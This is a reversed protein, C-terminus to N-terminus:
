QMSRQRSWVLCHKCYKPLLDLVFIIWRNEAATREQIWKAVRGKAIGNNKRAWLSLWTAHNHYFRWSKPRSQLGSHRTWPGVEHQIPHMWQAQQCISPSDRVLKQTRGSSPLQHVCFRLGWLALCIDNRVHRRLHISYESGIDVSNRNTPLLHDRSKQHDLRYLWWRVFFSWYQWRLCLKCIGVAQVMRTREPDTPAQWIEWPIGRVLLPIEQRRIPTARYCM